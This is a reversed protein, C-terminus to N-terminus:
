DATCSVAVIYTGGEVEDGGILYYDGSDVNITGDLKRKGHKDDLTFSLRLRVKTKTGGSKERYLLGMRSGTVLKLDLQKMRQLVQDHRKLLHFTKWSSFPPKKLKKALPRLAPDVGGPENTAKIEFIKCAAQDAAPKAPAHADGPGRAGGHNAMPRARSPTPRASAPAALGGLVLAWAGALILAARVARPVLARSEARHGTM